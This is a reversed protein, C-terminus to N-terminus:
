LISFEGAVFTRNFCIAWAIGAGLERATVDPMEDFRFFNEAQPQDRQVVQMGIEIQHPLRSLLDLIAAKFFKPRGENRIEFAVM